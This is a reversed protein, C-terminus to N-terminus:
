CNAENLVGAYGVCCAVQSPLSGLSGLSGSVACTLSQVVLQMKQLEAKLAAVDDQMAAAATAEGSRINSRTVDDVTDDGVAVPATFRVYSRGTPGSKGIKEALSV